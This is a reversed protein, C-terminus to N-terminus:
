DPNNDSMGESIAWLIVTLGFWAPFFVKGSDLVLTFIFAGIAALPVFIFWLKKTELKERREADPRPDIKQLTVADFMQRKTQEDPEEM